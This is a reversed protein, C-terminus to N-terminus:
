LLWDASNFCLVELHSLNLLTATRNVFVISFFTKQPYNECMNSISYKTEFFIHLHRFSYKPKGTYLKVNKM